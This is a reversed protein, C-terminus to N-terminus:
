HMALPVLPHITPHIPPPVTSSTGGSM